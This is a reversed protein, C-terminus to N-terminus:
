RRQRGSLVNRRVYLWSCLASRLEASCAVLLLGQCAARVCHTSQRCEVSEPVIRGVGREATTLSLSSALSNRHRDTSGAALAIRTTQRICPTAFRCPCVSVRAMCAGLLCWAYVCRFSCLGWALMYVQSICQFQCWVQGMWYTKTHAARVLLGQKLWGQM